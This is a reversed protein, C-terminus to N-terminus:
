MVKFLDKKSINEFEFDDEDDESEDDKNGNAMLCANHRMSSFSISQSTSEESPRHCENKKLLTALIRTSGVQGGQM